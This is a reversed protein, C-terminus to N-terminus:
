YDEALLDCEPMLLDTYYEAVILARNTARWERGCNLIETGTESNAYLHEILMMRTRLGDSHSLMMCYLEM